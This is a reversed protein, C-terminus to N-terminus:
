LRPEPKKLEAHFWEAAQEWPHGVFNGDEDLRDEDEIGDCNNIIIHYAIQYAERKDM